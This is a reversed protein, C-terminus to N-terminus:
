LHGIIDDDDNNPMCWTLAYFVFNILSASQVVQSTNLPIWKTMTNLYTVLDIADQTNDGEDCFTLLVLTKVGASISCM